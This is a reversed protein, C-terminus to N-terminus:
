PHIVQFGSLYLYQINLFFKVEGLLFFFFLISYLLNSSTNVRWFSSFALIFIFVQLLLHQLYKTGRTCLFGQLFPVIKLSLFCFLQLPCFSYYQLVSFAVCGLCCIFSVHFHLGVLCRLHSWEQTQYCHLFHPPENLSIIFTTNAIM